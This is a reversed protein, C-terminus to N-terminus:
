ATPSPHLITPRRVPYYRTGPNPLTKGHTCGVVRWSPLYCWLHQSLPGDTDGARKCPLERAVLSAVSVSSLHRTRRAAHWQAGNEFRPMACTTPSAMKPGSKSSQALALALAFPWKEDGLSRIQYREPWVPPVALVERPWPRVIVLWPWCGGAQVETVGLCVPTPRASVAGQPGYELM